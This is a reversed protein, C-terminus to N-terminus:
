WNNGCPEGDLIWGQCDEICNPCSLHAKGRLDLIDERYQEVKQLLSLMAKDGSEDRWQEGNRLISVVGNDNVFTYKGDELGIKFTM